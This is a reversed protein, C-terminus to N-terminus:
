SSRGTSRATAQAALEARNAVGLKAYIHSLHVKATGGSIFLRRGIEANTLGRAALAVVELETPTLAAWGTSPRKREGRARSAYAAAEELSLAAGEKLAQGFAEHGLNARLEAVDTDYSLQDRPWRVQGITDRLAQAAGFLRAAEAHSQGAIALGGLAELTETALGRFGYELVLALARHHLDEAAPLNGGARALRGACNQTTVLLWPTGLQDAVAMAADFAPGAAALDGEELAIQGNLLELFAVIWPLGGQRVVASSAEVQHRAAELDGEALAAQALCLQLWELRLSVGWRDQRAVSRALLSRAAEYDGEALPVEWLFGVSYMELMPDAVEFAQALSSELLRRAEGYRAGRVAAIGGCVDHFAQWYQSGSRDASLEDLAPSALEPRDCHFVSHFSLWLRAANLTWKDGAVRAAEVARELVPLSQDPAAFGLLAGQLLLPRVGLASDGLEDALTAAEKAEAMGFGGAIEMGIASLLALRGLARVRNPSRDAPISALVRRYWGLGETFHGHILWFHTLAIVLQLASEGDGKALVWDLAARLNDHDRELADLTERRPAEEIEAAASQALVLFAAAHRDRVLEGEGADLLQRRAFDHITQLLRYREGDFVVLSKDVLDSLVTLVGSGDLPDGACVEDAAELTFGNSFAALRRLLVREVDSSLDHSWEVSAQLTQQRAVATRAGGTLLRFRDSLGRLIHQPTLARVRAAALEIALPIGDLRACIEAVAAANGGDLRFLARAEAAREVFLQVAESALLRDLSEEDGEQPLSLPPVRWVMEGPVGLPERSTVLTTLNPCARLIGDVLAGTSGLVHECNDLVLLIRRYGLFRSIRDLPELGRTDLLGLATLVAQPVFVQDSLPALDVWWLGDSHRPAAEMAVRAALRTKGCGGSGVLTVMRSRAVMPGLEAVEAERGIFSTLELPFHEIPVGPPTPREARRRFAALDTVAHESDGV